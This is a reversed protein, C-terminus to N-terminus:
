DVKKFRLLEKGEANYLILNMKEIKYTKTAELMTYFLGAIKMNPCAMKTSMMRGFVIENENLIKINGSYSNCGDNGLAKKDSVHIELVPTQSLDNPLIESQITQLAWIDHLLYMKNNETNIPKDHEQTVSCSVLLFLFLIRIIM